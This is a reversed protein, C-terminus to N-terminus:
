GVQPSKLVILVVTALGQGPKAVIERALNIGLAEGRGLLPEGNLGVPKGELERDLIWNASEKGNEIGKM